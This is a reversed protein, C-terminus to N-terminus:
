KAKQSKVNTFNPFDWTRRVTREKRARLCQVEAIRTSLLRCCRIDTASRDPCVAVADRLLFLTAGCFPQVQVVFCLEHHELERNMTNKKNLLLLISIFISHFYCSTSLCVSLFFFAQYLFFSFPEHNVRGAVPGMESPVGTGAEGDNLRCPILSLRSALTHGGLIVPRPIVFNGWDIYVALFLRCVFSTLLRFPSPVSNVLLFRAARIIRREATSLLTGPLSDRWRGETKSETKRIQRGGQGVVPQWQLM